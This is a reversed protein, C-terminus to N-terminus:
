TFASIPRLRDTGGGDGSGNGGGRVFATMTRVLRESTFGRCGLLQFSCDYIIYGFFERTASNAIKIAKNKGILLLRASLKVVVTL